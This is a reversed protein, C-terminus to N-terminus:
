PDPLDSPSPADRATLDSLFHAIGDAVAVTAGLLLGHGAGPIEVMEAGKQNSLMRRAASETVVRSLGGRILLTPCRVASWFPWLDLRRARGAALDEAFTRAIAPDFRGRGWPGAEPVAAGTGVDAWWRALARAISRSGPTMEPDPYSDVVVLGRLQDPFAAAIMMAVGGGMSYGCLVVNRIALRDIALAVDTFHADGDYRASESWGSAGHGRADLAVARAFVGSARRRLADVVPKWDERSGAIGHLFLLEPGNGTGEWETYTLAVGDGEITRVRGAM